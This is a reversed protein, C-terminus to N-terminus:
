PRPRRASGARGRGLCLVISAYRYVLSLEHSILLLTLRQQQQVRHITEYLM